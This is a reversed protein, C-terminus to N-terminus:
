KIPPIPHDPQWLCVNGGANSCCDRRRRILLGLRHINFALVSLGGGRQFGAFLSKFVPRLSQPDILDLRERMATDSPVCNIGFLTGLNDELEPNIRNGRANTDFNLLSPYKLKFMALASLLCDPLTLKRGPVPDELRAFCKSITEVIGSASLHRRLQRPKKSKPM